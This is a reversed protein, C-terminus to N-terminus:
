EFDYCEVIKLNEEDFENYTQLIIEKLKEILDEKKKYKVESGFIGTNGRYEYEVCWFEKAM